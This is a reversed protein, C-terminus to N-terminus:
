WLNEKFISFVILKHSFSNIFFLLFACFGVEIWGYFPMNVNKVIFIIRLISLVVLLLMLILYKDARKETEGMHKLLKLEMEKIKKM